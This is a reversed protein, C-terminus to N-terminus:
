LKRQATEYRRNFAIPSLLRRAIPSAIPPAIPAMFQAVSSMHSCDLDNLRGWITAEHHASGGDTYPSPQTYFSLV